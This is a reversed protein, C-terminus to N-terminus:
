VSFYGESAIWEIRGFGAVLHVRTISLEYVAFDRFGAYTAASPHREVFRARREDDATRVLKGVFTARASALPDASANPEVLLSARPDGKANKTHEALDSLLFFPTGRDEAVLVLSVYPSGDAAVTALSAKSATRLLERAIVPGDSM